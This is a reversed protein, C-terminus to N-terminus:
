NVQHTHQLVSYMCSVVRYLNHGLTHGPKLIIYLKHQNTKTLVTQLEWLGGHPFSLRWSFHSARGQFNPVMLLIAIPCHSNELVPLHEVLVPQFLFFSHSFSVQRPDTREAQTLQVDLQRDVVLDVVSHIIVYVLM